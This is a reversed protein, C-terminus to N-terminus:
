FPLHGQHDDDKTSRRNHGSIRQNVVKKDPFAPLGNFLLGALGGVDDACGQQLGHDIGAIVPFYSIYDGFQAGYFAEFETHNAVFVNYFLKAYPPTFCRFPRQFGPRQIGAFYYFRHVGWRRHFNDKREDGICSAGPAVQIHVAFRDPWAHDVANRDDPEIQGFLLM